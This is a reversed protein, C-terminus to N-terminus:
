CGSVKGEFKEFLYILALDQYNVFSYVVCQKNIFQSCSNNILLDYILRPQNVFLMFWM